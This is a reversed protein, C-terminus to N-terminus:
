GDAVGDGVAVAEEVVHDKEGGEPVEVISKGVIENPIGIEHVAGDVWASVVGVVEILGASGDGVEGAVAETVAVGHAVATRSTLGAGCSSGAFRGVSADAFAEGGGAAEAGKVSGAAAVHCVAAGGGASRAVFEVSDDVVGATGDAPAVVAGVHDDEIDTASDKRGEPILCKSVRAGPDVQDGCDHDGTAICVIHRVATGGEGESISGVDEGADRIGPEVCHIEEGGVFAAGAGATTAAMAEVAASAVDDDGDIVGGSRGDCVHGFVPEIDLVIGFVGLAVVPEVGDPLAVIRQLAGVLGCPLQWSSRYSSSRYFGGRRELGGEPVRRLLASWERVLTGASRGPIM